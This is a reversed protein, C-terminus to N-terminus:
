AKIVGFFLKQEMRFLGVKTLGTNWFFYKALDLYIQQKNSM